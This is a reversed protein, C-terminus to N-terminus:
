AREAATFSVYKVTDNPMISVGYWQGKVGSYFDFEIEGTVNNRKRYVEPSFAAYTPGTSTIRLNNIVMPKQTTICRNIMEYIGPITVGASVISVDKFDVIQYGGLNKSAM